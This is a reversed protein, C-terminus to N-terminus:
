AVWAPMHMAFCSCCLYVGNCARESSCQAALHVPKMGVTKVGVRPPVTAPLGPIVGRSPAPALRRQKPMRQVQAPGQKSARRLRPLELQAEAPATKASRSSPLVVAM